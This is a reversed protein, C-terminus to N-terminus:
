DGAVPEPAADQEAQRAAAQKYDDPFHKITARVPNVAFEGLACICKGTMQGAVNDLLIIDQDDAMQHDFREYVRELWYTGERCPTCQGCSEHAFFTTMKQAAWVMDVTENLIIVSASGLGTGYPQLSEYDLPLDLIEDTAPLIAASAGAPLIGKPAIGDVMGGAMEILKRFTAEEGMPLEINGPNNVHGSMCFVKTGPSKETGFQRFAEVGQDLIYPVCALTEVNNIVTPKNYLGNVAPFPPKIRPQGRKGELSNLLATEEGCIYAGAGRHTYVECNWGTGLISQGIFGKARAEEIKEDLLDAIDWYEGRIYIYITEAKTAWAAILSGELLQHPNEEMIERDKFTGPESEDANVAIYVEEADKPIFNWKVGTPFGAGGRGRLGSDRVTTIVDEPQMQVAKKLGEYGGNAIYSDIEKIDPIDRNRLVLYTM